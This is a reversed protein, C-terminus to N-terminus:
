DWRAKILQECDNIIHKYIYEAVNKSSVAYQKDYICIVWIQKGIVQKLQIYQEGNGYLPILNENSYHENTRYQSYWKRVTHLIDTPFKCNVIQITEKYILSIEALKELSNKKREENSLSSYEEWVFEAIVDTNLEILLYYVNTASCFYTKCKGFDDIIEQTDLFITSLYRSFKM